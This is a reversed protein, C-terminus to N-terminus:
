ARKLLFTNILESHEERFGDEKGPRYCSGSRNVHRYKNSRKESDAPDQKLAFDMCSDVTKVGSKKAIGMMKILFTASKGSHRYWGNISDTRLKGDVPSVATCM